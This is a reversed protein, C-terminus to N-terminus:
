RCYDSKLERLGRLVAEIDRRSLKTSHALLTVIAHENLGSRQLAEAAASIKVIAEALIEKPVPKEENQTVAVARRL